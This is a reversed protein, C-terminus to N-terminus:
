KQTENLYDVIDAVKNIQLLAEESLEVEFTDEFIAVLSVLDLSSLGLDRVLLSERTVTQPDIRKYAAIIDRVQEFM